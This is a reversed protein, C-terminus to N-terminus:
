IARSLNGPKLKFPGRGDELEVECRGTEAVFGVVFGYQGNFEPKAQLGRVQVREGISLSLAASPPAPPAPTAPVAPAVVAKPRTAVAPPTAAAPPMPPPPPPPPPPPALTPSLQAAVARGAGTGPGGGGGGGTSGEDGSEGMGEHEDEHSESEEVQEQQEQQVSLLHDLIPELDEVGQARALRLWRLAEATDQELLGAQGMAYM